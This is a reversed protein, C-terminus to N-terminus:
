APATFSIALALFDILHSFLKVSSQRRSWFQWWLKDTDVSCTKWVRPLNKNCKACSVHYNSDVRIFHKRSCTKIAAQLWFYVARGLADRSCLLPPDLPDILLTISREPRMIHLLIWNLDRINSTSDDKAYCSSMASRALRDASDIKINLNFVTQM